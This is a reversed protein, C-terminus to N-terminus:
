NEPMRAILAPGHRKLWARAERYDPMVREVEAWFRASHNLEKRHCLEHVMVYDQVEKPCLMLLCNFNLNGKASCSGWRTRQNRITVRGYTVGAKGALERLRSPLERVARNGLEELEARSLRGATEKEAERQQAMALHKEIWERSNELHRRIETQPMNLPARVVVRGPPLIQIGMTKRRSRIIEIQM